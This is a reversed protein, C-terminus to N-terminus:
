QLVLINLKYNFLYIIKYDEKQKELKEQNNQKEVKKIKEPNEELLEIAKLNTNLSLMDWDLKNIDIWDRLKLM